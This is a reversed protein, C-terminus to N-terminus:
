FDPEFKWAMSPAWVPTAGVVIPRGVVCVPKTAPAAFPAGAPPPVAAISWAAEASTPWASCGGPELSEGRMASYRVAVAPEPTPGHHAYKVEHAALCAPTGSPSCPWPKPATPATHSQAWRVPRVDDCAWGPSRITQPERWMPMTSDTSGFPEIWVM